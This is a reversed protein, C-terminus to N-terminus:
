FCVPTPAQHAQRRTVQNGGLGHAVGARRQGTPGPTAVALRLGLECCVNLVATGPRLLWVGNNHQQCAAGCRRRTAVLLGDSLRAPALSM